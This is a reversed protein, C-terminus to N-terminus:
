SRASGSSTGERVVQPSLTGIGACRVQVRQGATVRPRDPGCGLMLVDGERLTMFASIDAILHAADRVWRNMPVRQATEGDVVVELVLTELLPVSGADVVWPGIACSGDLCKFRVPPRFFSATPVSLDAVLTIGSVCAWANERKVRTADTGLVVAVAACIEMGDVGEPMRFEDFAGVWTNAPKIYLVPAKPAAKYPPQELAEGLAALEDASNLAVGYVTGRTPVAPRDGGLLGAWGDRDLSAPDSTLELRRQAGDSASRLWGSVQM